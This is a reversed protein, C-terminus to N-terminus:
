APGGCRTSQTARIPFLRLNDKGLVSRFMALELISGSALVKRDSVLREAVSSDGGSTCGTFVRLRFYCHVPVINYM